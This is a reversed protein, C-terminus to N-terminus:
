ARRPLPNGDPLTIAAWHSPEDYGPSLLDEDWKVRWGYVHHDSRTGWYAVVCLPEWDYLLLLTTGDKPATEIPQWATTENPM